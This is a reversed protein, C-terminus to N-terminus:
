PRGLKVMKGVVSNRGSTVKYFYVGPEVPIEDDNKGDWRISNRGRRANTIVFSKVLRGTMNFVSVIAEQRGEQLWSIVTNTSFPNPYNQLIKFRKWMSTGSQGVGTVLLSDINQYWVGFKGTAVYINNNLIAVDRIDRDTLDNTVDFWTKGTDNSVFLGKETCAFVHSKYPVLNQVRFTIDKSRTWHDGHDSSLFVGEKSSAFFINGMSRVEYILHRNKEDWTNGNDSSRLLTYGLNIRGSLFIYKDVISVSYGHDDRQYNIIFRYKVDWTKGSDNSIFLDHNELICIRNGDVAVDIFNKYYRDDFIKELYKNEFSYKYAGNGTAFFFTNDVYVMKHIDNVRFPIDKESWESYGDSKRVGLGSVLAFIENNVIFLSKVETVPLHLSDWTSRTFDYMYLGNDAGVYMSDGKLVVDHILPFTDDPDFSWWHKGLDTSFYLNRAENHDPIVNIYIDFNDRIIIPYIPGGIARNPGIPGWYEGNDYSRYLVGDGNSALMISDKLAMSIIGNNAMGYNLVTWNKGEDTTRCVGKWSSAYLVSDQAVVSQANFAPPSDISRWTMGNDRSYYINPYTLVYLISDHDIINRINYKSLHIIDWTLGMNTSIDLGTADSHRNITIVLINRGSLVVKKAGGHLGKSIIRWQKGRDSTWYIYDNSPVAIVNSGNVDFSTVKGGYLGKTLVWQAESTRVCLIVMVTLVLWFLGTFRYM